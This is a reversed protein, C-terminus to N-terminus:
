SPNALSLSNSTRSYTKLVPQEMIFVASWELWKEVTFAEARDVLRELTPHGCGTIMVLGQGAVHIVLGQEHGKPDFLNIPYVEPFSIVGTTAMDKSIRTPESSHAGRCIIPIPVYIPMQNRDAKFDGFFLRTRYKSEGMHDPHPHSIMAADIEELFAL